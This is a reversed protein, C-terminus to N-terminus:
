HVPEERSNPDILGLMLNKTTNDLNDLIDGAREIFRRVGYDRGGVEWENSYGKAPNAQFVKLVDFITAFSMPHPCALGDTHIQKPFPATSLATDKNGFQYDYIQSMVLLCLARFVGKDSQEVEDVTDLKLEHVLAYRNYPLQKRIKREASKDENGFIQWLLENAAFEAFGEHFAINLRESQGHTDMDPPCFVAALWNATGHNHDYNWLHMVEHFVTEVSWQDSKDTSHIYASRTVGNAYCAGSVNNAPYIVRIKSKFAFYSDRNRLTNILTKVAFWTIARRRNDLTGLEGNAGSEFTKTGINITPGEVEHDHEFITIAPSLFNAMDAMAGSNIALDNDEFRVKVKFKRKSKDKEIKLSFNGAADTRVKGWSAFVGLNSASIEVEAGAVARNTMIGSIANENVTIRGTITWTVKSM